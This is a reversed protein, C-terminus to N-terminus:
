VPSSADVQAREVDTTALEDYQVVWKVVEVSGDSQAVIVEEEEEAHLAFM